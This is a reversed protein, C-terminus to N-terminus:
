VSKEPVVRPHWEGATGNVEHSALINGNNTILSLGAIPDISDAAMIDFDLPANQCLDIVSGMLHGNGKFTLRLTRSETAYVRRELTNMHRQRLVRATPFLLIATRIEM